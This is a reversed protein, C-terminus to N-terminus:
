YFELEARQAALAASDRDNLLLRRVFSWKGIFYGLCGTAFVVLGVLFIDLYSLWDGLFPEISMFTLTVFIFGCVLELTRLPVSRRSLVVVIEGSTKLEAAEIRSEVRRLQDSSLRRSLWRPSNQPLQTTTIKSQDVM